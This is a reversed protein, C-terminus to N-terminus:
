RHKRHGGTRPPSIRPLEDRTIVGDHNPDLLAFRKDAAHRFEGPDVGRNFNMDDITVPEPYPLYSYLGAGQRDPYVTKATGGSGDSDDGGETDELQDDGGASVRIEPLMVGEYYDIDGPDIEGDHGRDLVKFFRAADAEFEALTLKGDGNTDAGQFWLVQPEVGGDSRFPEGMPSVFLRSHEGGDTAARRAPLTPLPPGALQAAALAILIMALM